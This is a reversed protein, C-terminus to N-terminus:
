GSVNDWFATGTTGSVFFYPAIGAAVAAGAVCYNGVTNFSAFNAGWTTGSAMTTNFGCVTNRFTTCERVIAEPTLSSNNIFIGNVTNNDAICQDLTVHANDVEFGNAGNATACCDKLVIGTPFADPATTGEIEFGNNGNDVAYCDKLLVNSATSEVYFGREDNISANCRSIEIDSGGLQCGANSFGSQIFFSDTIQVTDATSDVLLGARSLGFFVCNHIKIVSTNAFSCGAFIVSNEIFINRSQPSDIGIIDIGPTINATSRVLSDCIFMNRVTAGAAVIIPDTNVNILHVTSVTGSSISIGVIGNIHGNMIVIRNIGASLIISVLNILPNIRYGNLDLVVDNASITITGPIDNALCYTGSASITGPATIPTPECETLLCVKSEVVDLTTIIRRGQLKTCCDPDKLCGCKGRYAQTEDTPLDSLETTINAAILPITSILFYISLYFYKRM